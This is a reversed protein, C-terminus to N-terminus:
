RAVSEHRFTIISSGVICIRDVRNSDVAHSHELLHIPIKLNAFDDIDDCDDVFGACYTNIARIDCPNTCNM